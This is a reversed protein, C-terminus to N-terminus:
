LPRGAPDGRCTKDQHVARVARGQGSHRPGPEAGTAAPRHAPDPGQQHLGGAIRMYFGSEAQWLMGANGVTSVVVVIEGPALQSRYQGASVFAPVTTQRTIVLPSSGLVLGAIVLVALSWRAWLMPTAPKALWLATAVALVLFAFLMLRAPFANRVFPLYWLRAWPLRGILTGRWTSLRAM